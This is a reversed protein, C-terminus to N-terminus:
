IAHDVNKTENKGVAKKFENRKKQLLNLAKANRSRIDLGMPGTVLELLFKVEGMTITDSTLDIKSKEIAKKIDGSKTAANLLKRKGYAEITENPAKREDSMRSLMINLNSYSKGSKSVEKFLHALGKFPAGAQLDTASKWDVNTNSDIANLNTMAENFWGDLISQTYDHNLISERHHRNAEARVAQLSGLDTVFADFIPLVFVNSGGLRETDSKIRQYSEGSLTRGVMNGDYSQVPVPLSLGVTRGGVQEMDGKMRVASPSTKTKYFQVAVKQRPDRFEFQGQKTAEPDTEKGALYSKFGMANTFSLIQETLVSLQANSKIVQNVQLTDADFTEYISDVLAAHLFDTVKNTDLNNQKILDQISYGNADKGIGMFVTTDVHQQLSVLDQGYGMTMPSKKLFNARDQVALKLIEKYVPLENTPISGAAGSASEVKLLMSDAMADRLDKYEELKTSVNGMDPVVVGARKAIPISGLLMAMTAPGHTKGDLEMTITTKHVLNNKSANDWKALDMLYDAHLIAEEELNGLYAKLDNDLVDNGFENMLRQRLMQKMQQTQQTEQGKTVNRFQLVLEKANNTNFNQTAALLQNGWRIYQDYLGGRTQAEQNFINIREEPSRAFGKEKKFRKEFLHASIVEKWLNGIESNDNAQFQYVNGSGALFRIMKHAQPNYLTQQSHIRGTLAQLGFTLHNARGSYEAAAGLVNLFKERNEQVIRQPNYEEAQKQLAISKANKGQEAARVAANALLAKENQADQLKGLGIKFMSPYTQKNPDPNIANIMAQTALLFLTSERRPDNIFATSNANLMAEEVVATNGMPGLATTVNRVLVQQESEKKGSETAALNPKVEPQAMLGKAKDNLIGLQNIGEQTLTFEVQGNVLVPNRVLIDPNARAYIEKAQDGLFTFAESSVQDYDQVYSDTALGKSEAQVRKYNQFIQRGLRENGKAKTLKYSITNPKGDDADLGEINKTNDEAEFMSQLLFQETSLSMVRGLEPDIVMQGEPTMISADLLEKQYILPQTAVNVVSGKKIPATPTILNSEADFKQFAEENLPRDVLVSPDNTEKYLQFSEPTYRVNGTMKSGAVNEQLMRSFNQGRVLAQYVPLEKNVSAPDLSTINLTEYITPIRDQIRQQETADQTVGEILTNSVNDIPSANAIGTDPPLGQDVPTPAPKDTLVPQGPVGQGLLFPNDEPKSIEPQKIPAFLKETPIKTASEELPLKLQAGPLVSPGSFKAM